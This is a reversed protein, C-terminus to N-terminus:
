GLHNLNLASFLVCLVEATLSIVENFELVKLKVCPCLNRGFFIEVVSWFTILKEGRQERDQATEM